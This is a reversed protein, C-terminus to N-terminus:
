ASRRKSRSRGKAATPQKRGGRKPARAAKASARGRPAKAKAAPKTRERVDIKLEHKAIERLFFAAKQPGLGAPAQDLLERLNAGNVFEMIVFWRGQANQRIDFISVLHPSKLNFPWSVYLMGVHFLILLGFAGVRLWDLFYKRPGM